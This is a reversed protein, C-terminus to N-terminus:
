LSEPGCAMPQDWWFPDEWWVVEEGEWHGGDWEQPPDREGGCGTFDAFDVEEEKGEEEAPECVLEEERFGLFEEESDSGWNLM